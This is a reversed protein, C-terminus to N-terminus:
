EDAMQILRGNSTRNEVMVTTPNGRYYINGSSFISARLEDTVNIYINGIGLQKVICNKVILDKAYIFASGKSYITANVAKGRITYHGFDDPNCDIWCGSVNLTVDLETFKGWDILFFEKTRFTDRTSIYVPKRINLQPISILHLELKIKHYNRSWNYKISNDLHLVGDEVFIEIDSMLNEGCTVIAKNISDQVLTIDLMSNVEIASIRDQLAIEKSVIDGANFLANKECSILHIILLVSIFVKIPSFKNM